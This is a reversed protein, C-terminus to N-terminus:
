GPSVAGARLGTFLSMTSPMRKLTIASSLKADLFDAMADSIPDQLNSTDNISELPNLLLKAFAVQDLWVLGGDESKAIPILEDELLDGMSDQWRVQFVGLATFEDRISTQGFVGDFSRRNGTIDILKRVLPNELDMVFMDGDTNRAARDTTLHIVSRKGFGPLTGVMHDPLVATLRQASADCSRIQIDCHPLMAEVFSFLHDSTLASTGTGEYADAYQLIDKEVERAARAAELAAELEATTQELSMTTARELIAEMDLYNLLEGLIEAELVDSNKAEVAAMDHAITAVRDMMLNMAENDFSDDSQLNLVQVRKEQGYRYLRGIRQVLRSPNWPLDFNVLVHCSQQLNLGEGGAETSIMVQANRSNFDQVNRIKDRLSMSGNIQAVFDIQSFRQQLASVLYAQTARYETFVLLNEGREILPAAVDQLFTKLKMDRLQAQYALRILRDLWEIEGDFFAKPSFLEAMDALGDDGELVGSDILAEVSHATTSHDDNLLREKRLRLARIVAALSSSALKRYTTMVFGVARGTAGARAGVNYGKRLYTQLEADFRQMEPSPPVRYRQTDHGKFLLRGQADTVRTKRNRIVIDGVLEPNAELSAIERRLEPRVLELLAAFRRSKGQHPTATLLLLSPTMKRLQEALRYRQTREGSEARGLRHAEDFVVLDWDGAALIAQSHEERKALDLSVILKEKARLITTPQDRLDNTYIEFSQNFKYAMEDQWQRVLGAPCVILVRRCRNRQSLAHLILGVEITKGLGVDDAILWNSEGSAVVKEAVHLQHPLPDIDLRGLAGTNADWNWLARGLTKLRFREAHDTKLGTSANDLRAEAPMVIRLSQYPLWKTLGTIHFQCLVQDQGALSRISQITGVGLSRQNPLFTQHEIEQGVAFGCRLSSPPFNRRDGSSIERVAVQQSSVLQKEVRAREGAPTLVLCHEVPLANNM